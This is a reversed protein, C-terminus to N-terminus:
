HVTLKSLKNSLMPYIKFIAAFMFVWNIMLMKQMMPCFYYIWPSVGWNASKNQYTNFWLVEFEPWKLKTFGTWFWSDIFLTFGICTISGIIGYIIFMIFFGCFKSTFRQYGKHIYM